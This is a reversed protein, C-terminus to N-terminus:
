VVVKLNIKNWAKIDFNTKLCRFNVGASLAIHSFLYFRM